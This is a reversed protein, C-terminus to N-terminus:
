GFYDITEVFYSCLNEVQENELIWVLSKYLSQDYDELDHYDLPMELILKYFAKV